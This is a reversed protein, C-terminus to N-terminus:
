CSCLQAPHLQKYYPSGVFYRERGSPRTPTCAHHKCSPVRSRLVHSHLRIRSGLIIGHGRCRLRRHAVPSPFLGVLLKWRNVCAYWREDYWRHCICSSDGKSSLAGNRSHSFSAWGTRNPRICPRRTLVSSAGPVDLIARAAVLGDLITMPVLAHTEDGQSPSSGSYGVIDWRGHVPIVHEEATMKQRVRGFLIRTPIRLVFEAHAFPLALLAGANCRPCENQFRFPLYLQCPTM